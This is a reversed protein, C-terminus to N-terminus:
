PALLYYGGAAEVYADTGSTLYKSGSPFAGGSGGGTSMGMNIDLSFPYMALSTLSLFIILIKRM